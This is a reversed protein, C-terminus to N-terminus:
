VKILEAMVDNSVYLGQRTLSIHTGNISLRGKKIEKEACESLYRRYDKGLYEEVVNLDIGEKTRLATTILDNYRMDDDLIEEGEMYHGEIYRKVDCVNWYRRKGDYSHAGAGLGIYHKEWPRWYDSNHQSRFGPKCFNSIEYHEYGAATMTDILTYYMERCKEEDLVKIKGEDLMRTLPTGEEYMLSYASIHEVDLALTKQLDDRWEELTQDPFGFILDVSINKIGAKRLAKVAPLIQDSKHRRHLFRLREDSFTQVGMSVRNIGNDALLQALDDSMDDPNCEITREGNTLPVFEALLKRLNEFSLVSPTGGGIYLGEGTGEWNPPTVNENQNQNENFEKILAEVYM